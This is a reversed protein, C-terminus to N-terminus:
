ERGSLNIVGTTRGPGADALEIRVPAGDATTGALTAGNAQVKYGAREAEQVFWDRVTDVGAPADFRLRVGGKGAPGSNGQIDMGEIRAGPFLKLGDLDLNAADLAMRPLQVDAKFVPTDIRVRGDKDMAATAAAGNETTANLTIPTAEDAQNCAALLALAALGSALRIM